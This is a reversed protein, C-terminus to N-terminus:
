STLPSNGNVGGLLALGDTVEVWSARCDYYCHAAPPRDIPDDVNALAVHVEKAWRTGEFTLTSGCHGCFNRWAQDSSDYRVLNDGGELIRFRDRDVGVFTVFGAGHARRCLSCHCHACWLTPFRIEFRIKGCLCGGLARDSM